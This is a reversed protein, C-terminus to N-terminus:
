ESSLRSLLEDTLHRVRIDPDLYSDVEHLMGLFLLGTEDRELTSNVREAIFRDRKAMSAVVREAVTPDLKGEPPSEPQARMLRLEELLLAPDETGVLEAGREVLRVILRYNPSGQAAVTRAIDLERGCIPLGDQYVKVRRSDEALADVESGILAWLREIWDLHAKWKEEGFRLRYREEASEAWGGLDQPSHIVAVHVLSRM